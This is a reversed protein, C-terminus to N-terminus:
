RAFKPLVSLIVLALATSLVASGVRGMGAAVGIAATLWV